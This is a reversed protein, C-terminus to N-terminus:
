HMSEKLIEGPKLEGRDFRDLIAKWPGIVSDFVRVRKWTLYQYHEEEIGNCIVTDIGETLILQCLKESSPQALVMISEKRGSGSAGSEAVLVEAAMDFRPAIDDGYLPILIKQSM